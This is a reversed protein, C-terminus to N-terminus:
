KVDLSNIREYVYNTQFIYTILLQYSKATGAKIPSLLGALNLNMLALM